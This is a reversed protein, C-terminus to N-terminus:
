DLWRWCRWCHVCMGPGVKASELAAKGTSFIIQLSTLVSSNTEPGLGDLDTRSWCISRILQMQVLSQWATHCQDIERVIEWDFTTASLFFASVCWIHAHYIVNIFIWPLGYTDLLLSPFFTLCTMQTGRLAYTTNMCLDYACIASFSTWKWFINQKQSWGTVQSM